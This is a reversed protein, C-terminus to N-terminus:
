HHIEENIKCVLQKSSTLRRIVLKLRQLILRNFTKLGHNGAEPALLRLLVFGAKLATQEGNSSKLPNAPNPVHLIKTGRKQAV